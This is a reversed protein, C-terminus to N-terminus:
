PCKWLQFECLENGDSGLWSIEQLEILLFTSLVEPPQLGPVCFWIIDVTCYRVVGASVLQDEMIASLKGHYREGPDLAVALSLPVHVVKVEHQM